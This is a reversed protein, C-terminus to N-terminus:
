NFFSGNIMQVNFKQVYDFFIKETMWATQNFYYQFDLNRVTKIQRPNESKGIILLPLKNNGTMNAAVFITMREKSQKGFKCIADKVVHTAKPQMRWFLGLEDGNYINDPDILHIHERLQSDFWREIVNGDVSNAEGHIKSFMIMNRQKFNELYGNSAKFTDLKSVRAIELAKEKLMKENVMLGSENCNHIFNRLGTDINTLKTKKLTKRNPSATQDNYAAMYKERMSWIQSINSKNKLKYKAQIVDYNIGANVDDIVKKKVDISIADKKKNEKNSM